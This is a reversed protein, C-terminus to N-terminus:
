NGTLTRSEKWTGPTGATTCIWGMLVYKSGATGLESPSSNRVFDGVTYTGATPAATSANDASHALSGSAIGNVKNVLKRFFDLLTKNLQADVPNAPLIPDGLRM